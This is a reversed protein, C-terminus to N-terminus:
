VNSAGALNNTLRGHSFRDLIHWRAGQLNRRAVEVSRGIVPWEAVFVALGLRGHVDVM